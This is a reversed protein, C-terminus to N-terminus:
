QPAFGATALSREGAHPNSFSCPTEQMLREITSLLKTRSDECGAISPPLKAIEMHFARADTSALEVLRSVLRRYRDRKGKCHRNRKHCSQAADDQFQQSQESQFSNEPNFNDRRLVGYDQVEPNQWTGCSFRGPSPDEGLGLDFSHTEQFPAAWSGSAMDDVDEDWEVPIIRHMQHQKNQPELHSTAASLEAEEQPDSNDKDNLMEILDTSSVVLNGFSPADDGGKGPFSAARDSDCDDAMSPAEEFRPPMSRTRRAASGTQAADVAEFFSNKVVLKLAHQSTTPAM